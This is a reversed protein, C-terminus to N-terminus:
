LFFRTQEFIHIQHKLSDLYGKINPDIKDGVLVFKSRSDKKQRDRNSIASYFDVIEGLHKNNIKTAKVEVFLENGEKDKLRFDPSIDESLREEAIDYEPYIKYINKLLYQEALLERNHAVAQL